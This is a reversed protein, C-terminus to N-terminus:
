TFDSKIDNIHDSEYHDGDNGNQGIINIRNEDAPWADDPLEVQENTTKPEINDFSERENTAVRLQEKLEMIEKVYKEQLDERHWHPITELDKRNSHYVRVVDEFDSFCKEFKMAYLEKMGLLLNLIKDQHKADMGTFFKDDGIYHYMDELDDVVNWCRMIRQELDFIKDSM